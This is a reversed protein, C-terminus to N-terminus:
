LCMKKEKFNLRIVFQYCYQFEIKLNIKFCLNYNYCFIQLVISFYIMIRLNDINIVLYEYGGFLKVKIFIIQLLYFEFKGDIMSFFGFFLLILFEIKWEIMVFSMSM